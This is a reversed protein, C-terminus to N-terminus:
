PANINLANAGAVMKVNSVVQAEDMPIIKDIHDTNEEGPPESEYGTMGDLEEFTSELERDQFDRLQVDNGNIEIVGVVEGNETLELTQM